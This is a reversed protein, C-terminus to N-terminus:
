PLLNNIIEKIKYFSEVVYKDTSVLDPIVILNIKKETAIEQKKKDHKQIKSLKEEGYIPKYHIIGNWEIGLKLEPIAIDCELGDFLEKDNAKIELSPFELSLMDFLKKECISRRSKRKLTNNYSCSCSQNCFILGSKSRNIQSLVREVLKHCWGCKTEVSTIKGKYACNHSCYYNGSWKYGKPSREGCSRKCKNEPLDSSSRLFEVGCISCILVHTQM